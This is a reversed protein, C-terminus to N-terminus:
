AAEDTLLRQQAGPLAEIEEVEDPLAMRATTIIVSQQRRRAITQDVLAKHSRMPGEFEAVCTASFPGHDGKMGVWRAWYVVLMPTPPFPPTM